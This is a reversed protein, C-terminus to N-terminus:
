RTWHRLCGLFLFSLGLKVLNFSADCFDLPFCTFSSWWTWSGGWYLALGPCSDGRLRGACYVCDRCWLSHSYTDPKLLGLSM